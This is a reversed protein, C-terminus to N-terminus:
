RGCSATNYVNGTVIVTTTSPVIRSVGNQSSGTNNGISVTGCQSSGDPNHMGDQQDQQDMEEEARKASEKDMKARQLDDIPSISASAHTTERCEPATAILALTSLIVLHPAFKM